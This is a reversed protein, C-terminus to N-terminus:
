HFIYKFSILEALDNNSSTNGVGERGGEGRERERERRESARETEYVCLCARVCACVYVCVCLGVFFVFVYVCIFAYVGQMQKYTETFRSSPNTDHYTRTFHHPFPVHM